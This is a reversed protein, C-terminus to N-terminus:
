GASIRSLARDILAGILRPETLPRRLLVAPSEIGPDPEGLHWCAIGASRVRELTASDIERHRYVLVDFDHPTRGLRQIEISWRRALRRVDRHDAAELATALRVGALLGSSFPPQRQLGALPLRLTFRSGHGSRSTLGIEGDMAEVLRRSIALGLGTGSHRRTTGGELQTFPEFLERQVRADIGPGTDSVALCLRDERDLWAELQVAGSPTFKVANSILNGVIQAIRDADGLAMVPLDSEVRLRLVLGAADASPAHLEAVRELMALLDFAQVDLEVRGAEIRSLDLIDNLIRELQRGSARMTRLTELSGSDLDDRDMLEMMGLLGHLPTRIEHSMTALFESKADSAQRAERALNRVEVFLRANELVQGAVQAFLDLRAQVPARREADLEPLWVRALPQDADGLSMLTGPGGDRRAADIRDPDVCDESDGFSRLDRPLGPHVFLVHGPRTDALDCAAEAIEAGLREPDLSRNLRELLARQLDALQQHAQMRRLSERRVRRATLSRWGLGTFALAMVAYAAWAPASRWPPPAIEFDIADGSRNWVGDVNAAQVQFRYRGAPLNSYFRSTRGAFEQWDLDWGDLRVRYRNQSPDIYSLAQFRFELSNRDWEFRPRAVDDPKLRLVRDGARLATVYVPPPSSASAIAAPDVVLLGEDTGAAFRGDGLDVTSRPNFQTQRLGERGSFLRFRGGSLELRALGISTLIWLRDPRPILAHMQGAPLGDDATFRALRELRAPGIRFQELMSDSALWLARGDFALTSFDGDSSRHVPVFRGSPAQRYLTRSGLLWWRGDPGLRIDRLLSGSISRDAGAGAYWADLLSGGADLLRLRGNDDALWLRDSGASEIFEYQRARDRAIEEFVVEDGTQADHRVLYRRQLVWIHREGAHLDIIHGSQDSPLTGIPRGQGTVLDLALLSSDATGVWIVGGRQDVATVRAARQQGDVLSYSRFGRWGPPLRAVGAGNSAVWVEGEAGVLVDTIMATGLPNGFEGRFAEQRGSEPDLLALGSRFGLWLRGDGASRIAGITREIPWQRALDVSGSGAQRLGIELMGGQGGVFATDDDALELTLFVSLETEGAGLVRHAAHPPDADVRWLGDTRLLWLRCRRDVALQVGFGQEPLGAQDPRFHQSRGTAPDLRVMGDVAYVGWISGDCAEAMSWVYRGRLAGGRGEPAWHQVVQTGELRVVGQGSLAAWVSGDSAALLSLVNNGPLSDIRDPNRRLVNLELGEHRVLGGQTGIWIYGHRDRALAEVASNPLGDATTLWNVVASPSSDAVTGGALVLASLGCAAIGIRRVSNAVTRSLRGVRM